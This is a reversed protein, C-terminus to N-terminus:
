RVEGSIAAQAVLLPEHSPGLGVGNRKSVHRGSSFAEFLRKRCLRHSNAAAPHNGASSSSGMQQRADPVAYVTFNVESTNTLAQSCGEHTTIASRQLCSKFGHGLDARM